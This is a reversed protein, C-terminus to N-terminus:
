EIAESRDKAPSQEPLQARLREVLAQSTWDQEGLLRERVEGGPGLIVTTPLAKVRYRDRIRALPDYYVPLNVEYRNMFRQLDQDRVDNNVTLLRLGRANLQPYFRQRFAELTHMEDRCPLCWSAWFHLVVVDGAARHLAAELQNAAHVTNTAADAGGPPVPERALSVGSAGALSLLGAALMTLTRTPAIIM